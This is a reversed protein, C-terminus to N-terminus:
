FYSMFKIDEDSMITKPLDHLKVVGDFYIQAIKSADSTKSCPLFHAMKSFYDIIVYISDHKRIYDKFTWARFRYERRALLSRACTSAYVHWHKTKAAQGIPLHSIAM